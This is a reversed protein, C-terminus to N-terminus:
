SSRPFNWFFVLLPCLPIRAINPDDLFDFDVLTCFEELDFFDLFRKGTMAKKSSRPTGLMATWARSLAEKSTADESLSLM